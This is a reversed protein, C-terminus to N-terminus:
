FTVNIGFVVKRSQPYNGTDVGIGNMSSISASEPDLGPYNTFTFFDDLSVYARIKSIHARRTINEPITYGLQIQKIKFYSGDFVYADSSYYKNVENTGPRAISANRNSPTWRNDYFYKLTNAGTVNNYTCAYWIDNGAAGSGFLVFDFGKYALNITLGYNFTPIGSGIMQLDNADIANDNNVDDFIANGTEPDVGIVHYGRMYWAPYGKEFYIGQGGEGIPGRSGSIREITPDLYTVENHLTSFNGSISYQLDGIHSRWSLDVEIGRNEINGANIPSPTNGASLSPTSNNVILDKTKKIYADFTLSLRNSFFRADFGIDTQESTEWKLHPNGLSSPSSGVSYSGDFPYKDNSEIASAYMYNSLNAISGNQGWSARLKFYSLVDNKPIFEENTLVWGASVAPFVGWREALPLVSLDAADARVSAEIFYREDYNYNLRGFYSFKRTQTEIGSITKTANGGAFDIWAFNEDNMSIENISTSLSQSTDESYSIGVMAGLNHRGFSKLYNAFNEWQWYARQPSSQSVTPKEANAWQNNYYIRSYSHSYSDNFSFGFRSTITLGPLPTLNAYVNSRISKATRESDSIDVLQLPNIQGSPYFGSIGYYYGDANTMLPRGEALLDNVFQPPTEYYVPTLPDLELVATMIGGGIGGANASVSSVKSFSISSNTGFTLWKFPKVEANVNFNYRTYRDKDGTVIGNNDLYNLSMMVSSKEGATQFSIGHRQMHGNEFAVAGWDTDTEGDWFRNLMDQTVHGYESYYQIYEEANLVEPIRNVSQIAYQFDYQITTKGAEARKTTIIVVGNGAESGYIAASAADKLIEMSEIESPDIDGISRVKLGDVIYLPESSYNSSYGRVRIVPSEGPAASTSLLQVGSTKGGLADVASTVTRNMLDSSEVKSIAGTVDSKRQVGYGVVVTEELQITDEEMVVNMDPAAQLERTVYSISSFVLTAGEPASIQFNGDIDTTVGTSTGKIMVACGIVADGNEDVVKGNIQVNQAFASAASLLIAGAFLLMRKKLNTLNM